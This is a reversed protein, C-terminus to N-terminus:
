LGHKYGGLKAQMIAGVQTATTKAKEALPGEFYMNVTDSFHMLWRQFHEEKLPMRANLDIHAQMTNRNYGRKDLLIDKWFSSIVPLHEELDIKAVYTFIPGLLNDELLHTYFERVLLDVDEETAIDAKMM